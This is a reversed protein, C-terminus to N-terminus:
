KSVAIIREGWLKWSFVCVCVFVFWFCPFYCLCIFYRFYCYTMLVDSVGCQLRRAVMSTCAAVVLSQLSTIFAAKAGTTGLTYSLFTCAYSTGWILGVVCSTAASAISTSQGLWPLLPFTALAFRLFGFVPGANEIGATQLAEIGAKTAIFASGWCASNLIMVAKWFVMGSWPKMSKTSLSRLRSVEHSECDTPKTPKVPQSSHKLSDLKRTGKGRTQTSFRLCLIGLIGFGTVLSLRLSLGLVVLFLACLRSKSSPLHITHM